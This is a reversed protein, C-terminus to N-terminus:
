AASRVEVTIIEADGTMTDGGAGAHRSVKVRYADGAVISDITTITISTTNPVGSTGSTTTTATASTDFSDSDIDTTLAMFAVVWVVAGTTATTATWKINVTLGSGLSAAEPMVSVFIADEGATDDFDLVAISNRTDPTAFNTAPAQNDTPKFSAYTKTGGSGGGGGGSGSDIYSM